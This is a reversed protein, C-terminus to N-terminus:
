FFGYPRPIITAYSDGFSKIPTRNEGGRGNKNHVLNMEDADITITKSYIYRSDNARRTLEAQYDGITIVPNVLLEEDVNIEVILKQNNGIITRHDEDANLTYVWISQAPDNDYVVKGYKNTIM